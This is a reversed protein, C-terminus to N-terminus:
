TVQLGLGVGSKIDLRVILDNDDNEDQVDLIHQTTTSTISNTLSHKLTKTTNPSVIRCTPCLVLECNAICILPQSCIICPITVCFGCQIAYMTEKAGRLPLYKGPSIEITPIQQRSIGAKTDSQLQSEKYRSSSKYNRNPTGDTHHSSSHGSTEDLEPLSVPVIESHTTHHFRQHTELLTTSSTTTDDFEESEDYSRGCFSNQSPHSLRLHQPVVVYEELDDGDTDTNDNPDYRQHNQDHRLSNTQYRYAVDEDEQEETGYNSYDPHYENSYFYDRNHGNRVNDDDDDDDDDDDHNHNVERQNEYDNSNSYYSATTEEYHYPLTCPSQTSPRPRHYTVVDTQQFIEDVSIDMPLDQLKPYLSMAHISSSSSSVTSKSNTITPHTETNATTSTHYTFPLSPPSKIPSQKRSKQHLSTSTNLSFETVHLPRHIMDYNWEDDDYLIGHRAHCRSSITFTTSPETNLLAGGTNPNMNKLLTEQQYRKLTTLLLCRHGRIFLGFYSYGITYQHKIYCPLYISFFIFQVVNRVAPKHSTAGGSYYGAAAAKRNEM